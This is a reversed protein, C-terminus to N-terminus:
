EYDQNDIFDNVYLTLHKDKAKEYFKILQTLDSYLKFRDYNESTDKYKSHIKELFLNQYQLLQLFQIHFLSNNKDLQERKLEIVLLYYLDDELLINLLSDSSLYDIIKCSSNNKGRTNLRENFIEIFKDFILDIIKYITHEFAEFIYIINEPKRLLVSTINGLDTTYWTQLESNIEKFDKAYKTQFSDSHQEDKLKYPIYENPYNDPYYFVSNIFHKQFAPYSLLFKLVINGLRETKKNPKIGLSKSKHYLDRRTESSVSDIQVDINNLLCGLLLIKVIEQKQEKNGLLLEDQNCDLTATLANIQNETLFSRTHDYIKGKEIQSLNGRTIGTKPNTKTDGTEKVIKDYACQSIHTSYNIFNFNKRERDLRIREGINKYLYETFDMIEETNLLIAFM